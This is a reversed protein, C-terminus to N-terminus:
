KYYNNLDIEGQQTNDYSDKVSFHIKGLTQLTFNVINKNFKKIITNDKQITGWQVWSIDDHFVLTVSYEKNPKKNIIIKEKDLKPPITDTTSINIKVSKKNVTWQDDIAFVSLVNEGTGLWQINLNKASQINTTKERTYNYQEVMKNGLMISVSQITNEWQINFIIQPKESIKQWDKINEITIKINPNNIITKEECSKEPYHIFIDQYNFDIKNKGSRINPMPEQNTSRKRRQKISELDMANPMFSTPTILYWEKIMNQPTFPSIAGNCASNYQIRITKPDITNQPSKSYALSKTNFRIPNTTNSNKGSLKSINTTKVEIQPIWENKIYNNTLLAKWFKRMVPSNTNGGFANRYLPTWNANGAWFIAIKSPTYSVLWGDRPRSGKSTRTNSTGTKIGLKIGWVSLGARWSPPMNSHDSLINWILYRIGAAIYKKLKQPKNQYIISGDKKRVELISVIKNPKTNSLHSYATGLEQMSMEAAGLVLSYGYDITNKLSEIGINKLFPKVKKEGGVAFFMKVAPINRSYALANKLPLMGLFRNDANNPRFGWVTFPIDFIPTDISVPLDRLGLAYIFPKLTSGVQRKAQIMDNKGQIEENFYDMSGIYALIEGNDSDLYLMAQNSAGHSTLNNSNEKILQEGIKQIDYDLTTKVTLWWAKLEKETFTKELEKKVMMVFHPAKIKFGAKKFQLTLSELFAKKLEKENIFEKEYMSGLAIDKRGYEYTITYNIGKHNINISLLGQIFKIFSNPTNQHSLDASTLLKRIKEIVINRIATEEFHDKGNIDKISLKGMLNKRRTYPNYLTASKPLSALIASELINLDKASKAFYTKSAAEIGFSNNWFPIYNLYLELIKEKKKRFIEKDSLERGKSIEETIVKDLKKTLIIEKLKRELKRDSSLLLNKIFQQPITSAGQLWGWPNVINHIAARIIGFTDLGNHERYRQDEVAVIANIMTTNIDEFPVYERNEDFLRYLEKGNRDTIITSQSFSINKLESVDPLKKYVNNNIWIMWRSVAILIAVISVILIMKIIKKKPTKKTSTNKYRHKQPIKKVKPINIPQM